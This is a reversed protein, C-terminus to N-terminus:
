RFSIVALTRIAPPPPPTSPSNFEGLEKISGRLKNTETHRPPNLKVGGGGLSVLLSIIKM